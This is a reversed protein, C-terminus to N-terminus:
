FSEGSYTSDTLDKLSVYLTAHQCRNQTVLSVFKQDQKINHESIKTM